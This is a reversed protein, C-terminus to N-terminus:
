RRAALISNLYAVVSRAQARVWERVPESAQEWLPAPQGQHTMYIAAAINEVMEEDLLPLRALREKWSMM